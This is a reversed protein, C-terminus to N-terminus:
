RAGIGLIVRQVYTTCYTFFKVLQKAYLVASLTSHITDQQSNNKLGDKLLIKIWFSSFISKDNCINRVIKSKKIFIKQGFM